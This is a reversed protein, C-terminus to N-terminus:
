GVEKMHNRLANLRSRVSTDIMRSGVKVRLGGILSEDVTLDIRVDRGVSAKLTEALKDRQADSLSRAATVEATVEGADDALRDRLETIMQPLVFLRRKSAMLRLTNAVTGSLGMADALAGIANQQQERTLIPSHVLGRFDASEGLAADLTEVDGRLRPLSGDDRSIDLLATAYRAAIGTSISLSESM